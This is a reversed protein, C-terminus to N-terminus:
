PQVTCQCAATAWACGTPGPFCFWQSAFRTGVMTADNPLTITVSVRGTGSSCDAVFRPVIWQCMECLWPMCMGPGNLWDGVHLACTSPAGGQWTAAVTHPQGIRADTALVIGANPPADGTTFGYAGCQAPLHCALALLAIAVFVRRPKM